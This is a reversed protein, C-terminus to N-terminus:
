FDSNLVGENGVVIVKKEIIEIISDIILALITIILVVAYMNTIQFNEQSNNILYGLGSKSGMMEAAILMLLSYGASLRIGVFIAPTSIPLVIKFFMAARGLGFSKGMKVIQPNANTIGSITSFVIPWLCTWVIISIKSFEGIGLFLVIIHFVLFPNIQSCVEILFDLALKLKKFWGGLLLGIPIGIVIAIVFGTMSRYLSISIHKFLQGSDGMRIITSIVKSFPPLFVPNVIKFQSVLEWIIFFVIVLIYKNLFRISFKVM